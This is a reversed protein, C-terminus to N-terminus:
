LEEVRDLEYGSADRVPLRFRRTEGVRLGDIRLELAPPELGGSKLAFDPRSSGSPTSFVLRLNVIAAGTNVVTGEIQHAGGAPVVRWNVEAPPPECGIALM